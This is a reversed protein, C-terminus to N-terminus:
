KNISYYFFALVAAIGAMVMFVADTSHFYVALSAVVPGLTQGIKMVWGFTTMAIGRHNDPASSLILEQIAPLTMGHGLGLVFTSVLLLPFPLLAICLMSLSYCIFGYRITRISGLRRVFYDLRTSFLAAFANMSALILSVVFPRISFDDELLMPFYSIFAGYLIIFVAIGSAYHLLLTRNKLFSVTEFFYSRISEESVVEPSSIFYVSVGIPFAVSFAIFILRWDIDALIGGLVFSFVVGMSLAAANYGIAKVRDLGEFLDGILASSLAVLASAGIGQLFRLVLMIQYDVFACGVGTVAFLFLSPILVRKRGFRDAIVGMVPAFFVGPLTFATILMAVEPGTILLGDRINALAPSIINVGLVGMWTVSFITALTSKNEKIPM